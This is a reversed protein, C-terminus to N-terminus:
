LYYHGNGGTYATVSTEFVVLYLDIFDAYQDTQCTVVTMIDVSSGKWDATLDIRFDPIELTLLRLQELEPASKLESFDYWSHGDLVAFPPLYQHGRHLWRTDSPHPNNEYMPDIGPYDTHYQLDIVEKSNAKAFADVAEDTAITTLGSANTFYELVTIKSREAISVNDFAFGQNMIGSSENTGIAVRLIINAKGKVADLNHATSVWESDPIFVDLGWGTSSGGPLNTLSSSNYWEIGTALSGVTKWGEEKVDQYQLVAGDKGPVFSRMIYLNIMPKKMGSFDFCPSQIWSNESYDIVDEPLQTFWAKDGPDQEFGNFDPMDWTWSEVQDLSNIRWYGPDMDFDETYPVASGLQITRRLNVEKVVTDSCGSANLVILEVQYDNVESFQFTVTDGASESVAGGLFGGNDTKFTWVLSDIDSSGSFSRDFFQTEADAMHCDSNWIFDADPQNGIVLDLIRESVCGNFTTATLSITRGGPSSYYHEPAIEDRLNLEGSSPDGFDWSWTEVELKGNTLNEFTVAGGTDPICTTSLAFEIQPAFDITVTKQTSAICGNQSSVSCVITTEGPDAM